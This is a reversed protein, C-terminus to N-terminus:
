WWQQQSHFQCENGYKTPTCRPHCPCSPLLPHCIPPPHDGSSTPDVVDQMSIIAPVAVPTHHYTTGASTHTITLNASPATSPTRTPALTNVVQFNTEVIGNSQHLLPPQCEDLLPYSFLHHLPPTTSRPSKLSPSPPTLDFSIPKLQPTTTRM